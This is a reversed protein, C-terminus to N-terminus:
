LVFWATGNSQIKTSQWQATLALTAAGDITEAGAGDLTVANASADTKKFYFIQGSALAASPLTITFAAGSANCLLTPTSTISMTTAASITGIANGVTPLPNMTTGDFVWGPYSGKAGAASNSFAQGALWLNTGISPISPRDTVGRVNYRMLQMDGVQNTFGTWTGSLDCDRTVTNSYTAPATPDNRYSRTWTLSSAVSVSYECDTQTHTFSIVGFLSTYFGSAPATVKGTVKTRTIKGTRVGFRSVDSPSVDIYSDVVGSGGGSDDLTDNGIRVGERVHRVSGKIYLRATDGLSMGDGYANTFQGQFNAISVDACSVVKLTFRDTQTTNGLGDVVNAACTNQVTASGIKVNRTVDAGLRGHIALGTTGATVVNLTGITINKCSQGSHNPEIDFGGPQTLVGGVLAGVKSSQFTGISVNDGSVLSIGNRGDNATNSAEFVGVTLGDTNASTTTWDSQSIYIGDGRIERVKFYPISMNTAGALGVMYIHEEDPQVARQGNGRMVLSARDVDKFLLGVWAGQYTASGSTPRLKLLFEGEFVIETGNYTAGNVTLGVGHFAYGAPGVIRKGKNADIAAQMSATHDLTPAGTKADAREALSMYDVFSVSDRQKDEETRAVAGAGAQIFGVGAAGGAAALDVTKVKADLAAQLNDGDATGVLEAGEDAALDVVKVAGNIGQLTDNIIVDTYGGGPMVINYRGDAAYFEFYGKADTTIPNPRVTGVNDSYITALGGGSVNVTVQVGRVADGARNTVNNQYKQM